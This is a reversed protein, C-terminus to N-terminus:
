CMISMKSNGDIYFCMDMYSPSVTKFMYRLIRSLDDSMKADYKIKRIKAKMKMIEKHHHIVSDIEAEALGDAKLDERQTEERWFLEEQSPICTGNNRVKQVNFHVGKQYWNKPIEPVTLSILAHFHYGEKQVNPERVLVFSDSIRRLKKRAYDIKWHTKKAGKITIFYLKTKKLFFPKITEIPSVENTM